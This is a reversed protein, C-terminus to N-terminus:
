KLVWKLLLIKSTIIDVLKWREHIDSEDLGLAEDFIREAESDKTKELEAIKDKIEQETKM